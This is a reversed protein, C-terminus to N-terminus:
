LEGLAKGCKEVWLTQGMIEFLNNAKELQEVAKDYDGKAGLLLGFDYHASARSEKDGKEELIHIANEFEKFGEDWAKEERHLTGLACRSKAECVDDKIEISTEVAKEAYERATKVDHLELYTRSICYQSEIIDRKLGAAERFELSQNYHDLATEYEEKEIHVHGMNTLINAVCKKFDIEKGIELGKRLVDMATKMDGRLYQFYGLSNYSLVMGRRDEIRKNIELSRNTHEIGEDLDGRLYCVLGINNLVNAYAALHGLNKLIESSRTYYEQALELDNKMYHVNGMNGYVICIMPKDRIKEFIELGEKLLALAKDYEGTEFYVNSLNSLASATSWEDKISRVTDLSKELFTVAKEYNGMSYHIAGLSRNADGFQKENGGLKEYAEIAGLCLDEAEDMNGLRWHAISESVSAEWYELNNEDVLEKARALIKLAQDYEGKTQFATSIKRAIRAKAANGELTKEAEEFRSIANDFNGILNELSGQRELLETETAKTDTRTKMALELAKDYLEIAQEPAFENEAKEGALVCYDFGKTFEGSRSYHRALEYLVTNLKDAYSTEYHSALSKHYATKWRDGISGYIVDQFLAHSFEASGNEAFVIGANQLKELALETEKISEFSLVADKEFVRGICSAYEAMVMADPDLSELRRHVVEEVTDPISYDSETLQFTGDRDIISGDDRMQRLMETLFFPNGECQGAIDDLFSQPFDNPSFYDNVLDEVVDKGLTGLTFELIIGEEHMRALAKQLSESEEPRLTGLIMIKEDKINRALYNLVFLSSEDAWHLEELLLMLPQKDSLTVLIELARDAIKVRETELKLGELDRRVLFDTNALSSVKEQVPAADTMSGNWDGLMSGHEEEIKDTTKRLFGRMDAHEGGRFVATLSIHQGHEILIKMNGYELRGLGARQNGTQDFSDRVFDQVASLMGAFIDADLDEEIDPSAEAVLMGAKNIAYLKTFSKYEQEQFLPADIESELAKSFVLFPHLSDAVAGGSLIKINRPLSNKFEELLRTKGIGAEGSIFLTSGNGDTLEQLSRNLISLEEERGILELQQISFEEM